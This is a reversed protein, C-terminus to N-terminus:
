STDWPPIHAPRPPLCSDASSRPSPRLVDRQLQEGCCPCRTIEIGLLVRMWDAATYPQEDATAPPPAGLLQRCRALQKQKVRNALLGYHRIRLFRDPLVHQLFRRLFEEAPLLGTKLRDGDRRDRYLYRVLGNQCALIRHNSIAVRHTYRGLYHLLKRPGAFPAQSYVVWPKKRLRRLWRRRSGPQALEALQPPIDLQDAELLEALGDLYKARFMKSLGHVPFLFQRGGAIWRSGDDALAGSAILCHLHFHARLQQDWTHLVLTFGVKGGLHTRGFELLTQATADFLLGLLARQNRQSYLTLGNLEHPLTFVDHFYPVPLLEEQRAAVWAATATSQCKPCHRNRCSHYAYREFGCAPCWERHGGLAATRCHTIAWMAKRQASTLPHTQQYAEGYLRFVDALECSSTEASATGGPMADPM